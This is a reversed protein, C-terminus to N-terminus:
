RPTPAAKHPPVSATTNIAAAVDAVRARLTDYDVPDALRALAALSLSAQAPLATEPVVYFLWQAPERHDATADAIWHWGFIFLEANRSHEAIWTLGDYRGTKYAISFRPRPRPSGDAHWSQRAASQKVQIRLPGDVQMLDCAGWDDACLEWEPELAQGVMEEVLEGRISNRLLPAGCLRYTLRAILPNVV